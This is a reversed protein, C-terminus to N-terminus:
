AVDLPTTQWTYVEKYSRPRVSVATLESNKYTYILTVLEGADLCTDMIVENYSFPIKTVNGAHIFELVGWGVLDNWERVFVEQVHQATEYILNSELELDYSLDYIDRLTKALSTDASFLGYNRPKRDAADFAGMFAAYEEVDNHSAYERIIM